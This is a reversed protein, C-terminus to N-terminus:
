LLVRFSHFSVKYMSEAGLSISILDDATDICHLLYLKIKVYRCSLLFVPSYSNRNAFILEPRRTKPACLRRCPRSLQEDLSAVGDVKKGKRCFFIDAKCLMKLDRFVCFLAFLVVCSTQRPSKKKKAM